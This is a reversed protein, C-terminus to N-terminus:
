YLYVKFYKKITAVNNTYIAKDAKTYEKVDQAMDNTYLAM